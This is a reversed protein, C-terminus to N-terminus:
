GGLVCAVCGARSALAFWAESGCAAVRNCSGVGVRLQSPWGAVRFRDQACRRFSPSSALARAHRDCEGSLAPWGAPRRSFQRVLGCLLALLAALPCGRGKCAEGVHRRAHGTYELFVYGFIRFDHGALRAFTTRRQFAPTVRCVLIMMFSSAIRPLAAARSAVPNANGSCSPVWSWWTHFHGLLARDFSLPAIACGLRAWVFWTFWACVCVCALLCVLPVVASYLGNADVHPAPHFATAVCDLSAQAASSHHPRFPMAPRCLM